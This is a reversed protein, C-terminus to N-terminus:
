GDQDESLRADTNLAACIASALALLGANEPHANHEAATNFKTDVFGSKIEALTAGDARDIRIEFPWCDMQVVVYEAM